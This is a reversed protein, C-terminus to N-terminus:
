EEVIIEFEEFRAKGETGPMMVAFPTMIISKRTFNPITLELIQGDLTGSIPSNETTL